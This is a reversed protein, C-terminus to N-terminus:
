GKDNQLEKIKDELIKIYDVKNPECPCGLQDELEKVRKLLEYYEKLKELPWPIYPPPIIPKPIQPWPTPDFPPDFKFQFDGMNCYVCM